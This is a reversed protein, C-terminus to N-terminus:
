MTSAGARSSCRGANQRERASLAIFRVTSLQPRKRQPRGLRALPKPIKM